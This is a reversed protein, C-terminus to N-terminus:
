ARRGSFRVVAAGANRLLDMLGLSIDREDKAGAELRELIKLAPGLHRVVADPQHSRAASGAAEMYRRLLRLDALRAAAKLRDM